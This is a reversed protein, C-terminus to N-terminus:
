IESLVTKVSDKIDRKIGDLYEPAGKLDLDPNKPIQKNDTHNVRIKIYFKL